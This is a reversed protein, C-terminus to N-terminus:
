RTLSWGGPGVRQPPVVHQTVPAREVDGRHVCAACGSSPSCSKAAKQRRRSPAVVTRVSSSSDQRRSGVVASRPRSPRRRRTRGSSPGSAPRHRSRRRRPGDRRRGPRRLHQGPPFPEGVDRHRRGVPQGELLDAVRGVVLQGLPGSGGSALALHRRSGRWRSRSSGRAARPAAPPARGRAARRRRAPRPLRGPHRQAPFVVSAASTATTTSPAPGVPRRSQGVVVEVVRPLAAIPAPPRRGLAVEVVGEVRGRQSPQHEVRDRGAARRDRGGGVVERRSRGTCGSGTDPRGRSPPAPRPSTGARARAPRSSPGRLGPRPRGPARARARGHDAVGVEAGRLLDALQVQTAVEGGLGQVVLPVVGPRPRGPRRGSRGTPAASASSVWGHRQVAALETASARM